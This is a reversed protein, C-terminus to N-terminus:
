FLKVQETKKLRYGLRRYEDYVPKWIIECQRRENPMLRAMVELQHELDLSYPCGKCGTRKFNYPPYYLECLEVDYTKVFWDEWEDSVPNLPKFKRLRGESDLVACGEHSAREGGEGMRIGLIPISRGSEREYRHAVEKKMKYCCKDSVKIKFSDSFQYRLILPCTLQRNSTESGLYKMVSKGFGSNQYTMLLHSHEKSKFPYGYKELMPKIAQTPKIIVVNPQGSVFERIANYEIGTDFFVRPIRNGPVAMDVLKSLITSDKGGSFSIYFNEEGFKKITDRIVGLRDQLIFDNDTM